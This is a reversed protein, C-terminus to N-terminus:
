AIGKILIDSNELKHWKNRLLIFIQDNDLTKYKEGKIKVLQQMLAYCCTMKGCLVLKDLLNLNIHEPTFWLTTEMNSCQRSLEIATDSVYVGLEALKDKLNIQGDFLYILSSCVKNKYQSYFLDMNSRKSGKLFVFSNMTVASSIRDLIFLGLKGRPLKLKSKLHLADKGYGVIWEFILQIVLLLVFLTAALTKTIFGWNFHFVSLLLVFSLLFPWWSFVMSIYKSGKSSDTTFTFPDIDLRGADGVIYTTFRDNDESTTLHSLVGLNDLIGGDMLGISKYDKDSKTISAKALDDREVFDQPFGIPEFGLPFCSSAAVIDGLKVYPKLESYNNKSNGFRRTSGTLFRFQFGKSFDTSNFIVENLSSSSELKKELEAFTMSMFDDYELAFANILNKRKHGFSKWGNLRKLASPLLKNDNLWNYLSDHFEKYSENGTAVSYAYRAATITGGSVSSISKLNPLLNSDHLFDLIGLSYGAARFGGGPLCLAIRDLSIKGDNNDQTSRQKKTTKKTM